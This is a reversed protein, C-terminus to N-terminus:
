INDNNAEFFKCKDTVDTVMPYLIQNGSSDYLDNIKSNSFCLVVDKYKELEKSEKDFFQIEQSHKCNFCNIDKM